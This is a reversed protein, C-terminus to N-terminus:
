RASRTPRRRPPSFREPWSGGRKPRRPTGCSAGSMYLSRFFDSALFRSEVRYGAEAFIERRADCRAPLPPLRGDLPAARQAAPRDPQPRGPPDDRHVPFFRVPNAATWSNCIETPTLQATFDIGLTNFMRLSANAAWGAGGYGIELEYGEDSAALLRVRGRFLEAGGEALCAEHAADNFKALTHLERAFGTAEDNRPHRPSRSRGGAGERCAEVDATQAAEWAPLLLRETGLDCPKNDITLEM